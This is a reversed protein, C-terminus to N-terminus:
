ILTQSLSIHFNNACQINSDSAQPGKLLASTCRHGFIPAQDETRESQQCCTIIIEMITIKIRFAKAGRAEETTTYNYHSSSVPTYM